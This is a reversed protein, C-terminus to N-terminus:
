HSNAIKVGFPAFIDKGGINVQAFLKIFGAKQPALHFMLMPGGHASATKPEDGMPHTHVVTHFDDYFGVIHAYAGMVPELSAVPKGHADSIMIMGMSEDGEAPPKDFSLTFHYGSVSAELSETKSIAGARHAGLDAVDFEQKGTAKPTIDAWARYGGALKPTFTFSYIGPTKTPVPHIHQYDTLTPDILLLHIKKTHATELDDDTLIRREKINNLKALVTVPQGQTITSQPLLTLQTAAPPAAPKKAPMFSSCAAILLCSAATLFFRIKM